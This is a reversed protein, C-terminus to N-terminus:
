KLVYIRGEGFRYWWNPPIISFAHGNEGGDWKGTQLWSSGNSSVEVGGRGNVIYANSVAIPRGTTNKYAVGPSGERRWTQNYGLGMNMASNKSNNVDDISAMRLWGSWSNGDNSHRVFPMVRGMPYYLQKLGSSSVGFSRTSLVVLTGASTGGSPYNRGTTANASLNQHYVGGTTVSNLNRTGLLTRSDVFYDDRISNISNELSGIGDKLYKLGAPTVAKNTITASQSEAVTALQTTGVQSTTARADIFTKPTVVAKDAITGARVEAVTASRVTGYITTTANTNKFAYPSVAYGKRITGQQTIAVNALTVTGNLQEDAIIVEPVPVLKDIALKVLKPTMVTDDNTGPVVMSEDALKITGASTRTSNDNDWKYQLQKATVSHEVVGEMVEEDTAYRTTGYDTYTARPKGNFEFMQKSTVVDDTGRLEELDIDKAIKVLGYNSDTAYVEEIAIPTISELIDQLNDYGEREGWITNEKDFSVSDAMDSIHRTTNTTLKTM